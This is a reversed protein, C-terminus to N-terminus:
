RPSSSRAPLSLLLGAILLAVLVFGIYTGPTTGTRAIPKMLLILRKAVYEVVLLVYTLSIMARYRILALVCLSGLLLQALGLLAFLSVVAEAGGSTFTDLPIGDASRAANYSNFVSGLGIALKMFTIPIFLWLALKYGRYNNDIVEPFIRDFM